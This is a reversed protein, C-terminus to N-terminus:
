KAKLHVDDTVIALSLDNVPAIRICCTIHTKWPVAFGAHRSYSLYNVTENSSTGHGDSAAGAKSSFVSIVVSSVTATTSVGIVDAIGSVLVFFDEPVHVITISAVARNDCEIPGVIGDTPLM